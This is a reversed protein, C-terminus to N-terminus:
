GGPHGGKEQKKIKKWNTLVERASRVKINGFVHPHRRKLKKILTSIVGEIDFKKSEDAIQSHFMVQLLIDGLEEKMQHLNNKRVASIFERTEERLYPILTKHNQKRDWLCGGPGRLKKFLRKLQIFKTGTNRTM